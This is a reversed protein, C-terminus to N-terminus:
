KIADVAKIVDATIDISDPAYVVGASNLVVFFGKEKALADIAKETTTQLPKLKDETKKNMEEFAKNRETQFDQIKKQLAKEEKELEDKKITGSQAKKILEEYSKKLENDKEAMRKEIAQGDARLEQDIAQGKKSDKFVKGVDVVAIPFTGKQNNQQARAPASFSLGLVLAAAMALGLIKGFSKRM